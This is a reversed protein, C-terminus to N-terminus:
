RRRGEDDGDFVSVHAPDILLHVVDGATPAAARGDLRATAREGSGLRCAVLREHGTSEVLEVTAPVGAGQREGAGAVTVDEPRVGVRVREGAVLSRGLQGVGVDVVTGDALRPTRIAGDDGDEDVTAEWVNMPPSGVFRAVFVNAPREYIETPTGFQQLRGDVIVAIGDAMTMAETQDHTVFVVTTGLRQHLGILEARTQARLAADLNSLPEDMLFARPERVIARALAVRQRQGGSLQGPKRDLLDTLGLLMAAEGARRDREDRDMGLPKLSFGINRRVTMHPYLAYSQFVMAVDRKNPEVDNVIAGDIAVTGEDPTELGAILRLLTSKGCGSPGLLVVFEGDPIDLTVDDVAVVDGFRKTVRDFSIEAM